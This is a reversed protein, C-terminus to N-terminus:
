KTPLIIHENSLDHLIYMQQPVTLTGTYIIHTKKPDIDKGYFQLIDNTVCGRTQTIFELTEKRTPVRFKPISELDLGEFLIDM